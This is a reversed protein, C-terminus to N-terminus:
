KFNHQMGATFAAIGAKYLDAVGLEDSNTFITLYYNQPLRILVTKGNAPIGNSWVIVPMKFNTGLWPESTAATWVLRDNSNMGEKFMADRGVQSMILETTSFHAVYNSFDRASMYYGGEGSCNGQKEISSSIIGKTSSKKEYGWAVNGKLENIADCSPNIAPKMKNFIRKTLMEDMQKGPPAQYTDAM